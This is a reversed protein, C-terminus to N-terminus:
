VPNRHSGDCLPATGTSKCACLASKCAAAVTYQLPQFGSGAHKGDCWPQNASQGCSCYWYTGPQLDLVIPRDGARKPTPM